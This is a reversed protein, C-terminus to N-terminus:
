KKWVHRAHAYWTGTKRCLKVLLGRNRAKSDVLHHAESLTTRLKRNCRPVYYRYGALSTTLIKLTQWASGAPLPPPDHICRRRWTPPGRKCRLLAAGYTGASPCTVRLPPAKEAIRRNKASRNRKKWDRNKRAIRQGARMPLGKAQGTGM